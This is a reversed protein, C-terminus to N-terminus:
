SVHLALHELMMRGYNSNAHTFDNLDQCFEPLLFGDETMAKSPVPVFQANTQNAVEALGEQIVGWLRKMVPAATLNSNIIEINMNRAMHQWIPARAIANMADAFDRRVPPTGSVIVHPCGTAVLRRIISRLESLLGRSEMFERIMRRPVLMSNPILPHDPESPDVFDFRPSDALLFSAFHQNGSWVLIVVHEKSHDVLADWYQETRQGPIGEQMLFFGDRGAAAVPLLSIPGQYGRSAGLAVMHSHGAVIFEGL